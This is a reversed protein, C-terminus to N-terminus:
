KRSPKLTLHWFLRCYAFWEPALTLLLSLDQSIVWFKVSPNEYIWNGLGELYERRSLHRNARLTVWGALLFVAQKIMHNFDSEGKLQPLEMETWSQVGTIKKIPDAIFRSKHGTYHQFRQRVRAFYDDTHNKAIEVTNLRFARKHLQGLAYSCHEPSLPRLEEEMAITQYDTAEVMKWFIGIGPTYGIKGYQKSGLMHDLSPSTTTLDDIGQSFPDQNLFDLTQCTVSEEDKKQSPVQVRNALIEPHQAFALHANKVFSSQPLALNASFNELSHEKLAAKQEISGNQIVSTALLQYAKSVWKLRKFILGHYTNSLVQSLKDLWHRVNLDASKTEPYIIRENYVGSVFSRWFSEATEERLNYAAAVLTCVANSKRGRDNLALQTWKRGNARTEFELLYFSPKPSNVPWHLNVKSENPSEADVSLGLVGINPLDVEMSHSKSLGVSTFAELTEGSQGPEAFLDKVLIRIERNGQDSIVFSAQCRPPLQNNEDKLQSFQIQDAVVDRSFTLLRRRPTTGDTAEAWIEGYNGYSAPLTALCLQKTMSRPGFEHITFPSPCKEGKVVLKWKGATSTHFNMQRQDSYSTCYHQTEKGIFESRSGNILEAFLGDKFLQISKEDAFVTVKNSGCDEQYLLSTGQSSLSLGVWIEQDYDHPINSCAFRGPSVYNLDKWYLFSCLKKRHNAIGAYAKISHIGPPLQDLFEILQPSLDTSVIGPCEKAELQAFYEGTKASAIFEVDAFVTSENSPISLECLQPMSYYIKEKEVTMLQSGSDFELKIRPKRDAQISWIGENIFFSIKPSDEKLDLYVPNEALEQPPNDGLSVKTGPLTWIEYEGTGLELLKNSGSKSLLTGIKKRTNYDFLMIPEELNPMENFKYLTHVRNDECLRVETSGSALPAILGELGSVRRLQGGECLVEWYLNRSSWSQRPINLILRPQSDEHENLQELSIYPEKLQNAECELLSDKIKGRMHVPLHNYEGNNVASAMSQAVRYGYPTKLFKRLRQQGPDIREALKQAFFYLGTIDEPAPFKFEQGIRKTANALPNIWQLIIGAQDTLTEVPSRWESYLGLWKCARHFNNAIQAQAQGNSSINLNLGNYADFCPWCTGETMQLSVVLICAYSYVAPHLQLGRLLNRYDGDVEERVLILIERQSEEEVPLLGLLTEEGSSHIM